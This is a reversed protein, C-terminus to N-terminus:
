VLTGGCGAPNIAVDRLRAREFCGTFGSCRHALATALLRGYLTDPDNLSFVAPAIKARISIGPNSARM